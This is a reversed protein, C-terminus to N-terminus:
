KHLALMDGKSVVGCQVNEKIPRCNSFLMSSQLPNVNNRMEEFTEVEYRSAMCTPYNTLGYNEKLYLICYNTCIDINQYQLGFEKVLM